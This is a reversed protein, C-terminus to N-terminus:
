RTLDKPGEYKDDPYPTGDPQLGMQKYYEEDNKEYYKGNIILIDNHDCYEKIYEEYTEPHETKVIEPELEDYMEILDDDLCGEIMERTIEVYGPPIEEDFTSTTEFDSMIQEFLLDFKRENKM